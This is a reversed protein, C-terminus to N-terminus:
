KRLTMDVLILSCIVLFLKLVKLQQLSEQVFLPTRQPSAGAGLEDNRGFVGRALSAGEGLKSTVFRLVDFARVEGQEGILWLFDYYLFAEVFRGELSLRRLIM